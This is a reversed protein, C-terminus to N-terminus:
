RQEEGKEGKDPKSNDESPSTAPQLLAFHAARTPYRELFGCEEM